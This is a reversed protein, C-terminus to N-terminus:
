KLVDERPKSHQGTIDEAITCIEVPLMRGPFHRTTRFVPSYGAPDNCDTTEPAGFKYQYDSIQPNTFLWSVTQGGRQKNIRLEPDPAPSAKHLETALTLANRATGADVPATNLMGVICLMNMGAQNITANIYAHESTFAQSYGTPDQCARVDATTKYRYFPTDTGFSLDWTPYVREGQENLTPKAHQKPSPFQPLNISFVPALECGPANANFTGDVFCGNLFTVTNGYSSEAELSPYGVPDVDSAPPEGVTSTSLIAFIENSSRTLMPSGSSGGAVGTCQNRVMNGWVWPQEIIPGGKELTCAALQMSPPWSASPAGVNIVDTGKAPITSALRIPQIGNQILTSLPTELKVLAIDHSKLTSYSITSVNYTQREDKTDAFYNFKVTGKTQENLMVEGNTHSICHGATLVYAPSDSTSAPSSTDLLTGTCSSGGETNVRGIGKWHDHTGDQNNLVKFPSLNELGEGYDIVNATTTTAPTTAPTTAKLQQEAVRGFTARMSAVDTDAQMGLARHEHPQLVSAIASFVSDTNQKVAIYQDNTRSYAKYHGSGYHRLIVDKETVADLDIRQGPELITLNRGLQSLEQRAAKRMLRDADSNYTRTHYVADLALEHRVTKELQTRAQVFAAPLSGSNLYTRQEDQSLPSAQLFADLRAQTLNPTENHLKRVVESATPNKWFAMFPNKVANSLGPDAQSCNAHMQADFLQTSEEKAVNAIQERLHVIRGAPTRSGRFNGGLGLQSGAPQEAMILNLLQEQNSAGASRDARTVYEGNSRRTLQITHTVGELNGGKTYTALHNNESDLIALATNVPWGPTQVALALVLGHDGDPPLYGRNPMNAIIDKILHDAHSRLQTDAQKGLPVEQSQFLSLQQPEAHTQNAPKTSNVPQSWVSAGPYPSRIVGAEVGFGSAGMDPNVLWDAMDMAARAVPAGLNLAQLASALPAKANAVEQGTKLAMGQIHLERDERLSQIKSRLKDIAQKNAPNKEQELSARRAVKKTLETCTKRLEDAALLPGAKEALSALYNRQGALEKEEPLPTTRPDHGSGLYQIQRLLQPFSYRSPTSTEAQNKSIYNQLYSIRNQVQSIENKLGSLKKRATTTSTSSAREASYLSHSSSAALQM